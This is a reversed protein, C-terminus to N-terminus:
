RYGYSLGVRTYYFGLIEKYDKQYYKAMAYAGWQSMGVRHGNAGRSWAKTEYPDTVGRLYPLANSFVAESSLTEGGDASFFMADIVAGNYTLYQNETAQVASIIAESETYGIYAQSYEDNTLDFGCIGGYASYHVNFMAYSRAAVAQAKLAETPFAPGMEIACVGMIYREIEVVNVVTVKGNGLDAYAFDGYYRKRAFWTLADGDGSLPRVALYGNKGTSEVSWLLEGTDTAYIGLGTSGEKLPQIQIRTEETAADEDFQVFRRDSDFYGFAYGNGVSNELYATELSSDRNKSYYYSLGVKVTDTATRVRGDDYLLGGGGTEDDADLAKLGNATLAYARSVAIKARGDAGVAYADTLLGNLASEADNVYLKQVAEACFSDFLLLIVAFILIHLYKKM